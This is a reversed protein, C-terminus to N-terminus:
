PADSGGNLAARAAIVAPIDDAFEDGVLTDLLGQVSRSLEAAYERAKELARELREIDAERDSLKAALYVMSFPDDGTTEACLEEEDSLRKIGTQLRVLEADKAAIEAKHAELNIASRVRSEHDRQAAEQALELTEFQDSVKPCYYRNDTPYKESVDHISYTEWPTNADWSGRGYEHKLDWFRWELPKITIETM